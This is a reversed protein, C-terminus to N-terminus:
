KQNKPVSLPTKVSLPDIKTNPNHIREYTVNIYKESTEVGLVFGHRRYYEKLGDRDKDSLYKWGIVIDSPLDIARKKMPNEDSTIWNWDLKSTDGARSAETSAGVANVRPTDLYLKLIERSRILVVYGEAPSIYKVTYAGWKSGVGLWETSTDKEDSLVVLSIPLGMRQTEM